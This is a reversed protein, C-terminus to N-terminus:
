RCAHHQHRRVARRYHSTPQGPHQHRRKIETREVGVGFFVTDYESFPVGFRLGRAPPSWSTTAARTQRLPRSTRYYLDFRARSATSRSTRISRASRRAHPQVQQHQGRRRPLQGIGFSTRRSSRPRCRSSRPAALLRRRAAPQRDAKGDGHDDPRGPRAHGAGRQTEVNVESSTASATSATARSSSRTPRRVLVGRVPPVRPPDSRRAHPHQRRHQHPACLRPAPEAVLTFAVRNNRPRDRPARRRQRVCLRLHRPPRHLGQHDRRGARRQVARGAQDSWRSSSTKRASTTARSSSAPSSTASAKPSTSRSRLHGAQRALDLGPDVRHPVRPLRPEPLVLAADRPRRQAQRAFLPRGQHVLHALRRHGPRVPGQLTRKASPRTASSTSRASRPPEGETVTFHPQRPQARAAHRHHRGRRRVPQADPVPAQAGARRPRGAGQRLAARAM